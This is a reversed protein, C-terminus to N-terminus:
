NISETKNSDLVERIKHALDKMAIPKMLFGKIGLSATKEKSLGDSFGTCLLIHIDPQTKMLEVALKYGPLGPMAMDSIVLDFQDPNSNFIELAEISNICTTVRYGMRRLLSKEMLLISKEDDVLLINETGGKTPKTQSNQETFSHKELPFYVKFESGIGLESYVHIAGNMSKVIGHVVSLGMGTGKNKGKTTFFPDFIKKTLDTDMGTGQDAITLLAYAGPKMDPSMLDSKALEIEKLGVKLEGGTDEMAHYANTSLNMIIQHIRTPDAKIIGCKPNINQKIEITTPITSRILKLAEKIIPQMKMLKMDSKEHRAFTLIQQVLDKARLAGSNIENLSSRVSSDEPLDELLMESYGLIPFLINNFDHAIGGALTGISEMKQAQELKIAYSNITRAISRSIVFFIASMISVIFLTIGISSWIKKTIRENIGKEIKALQTELVDYYFGSGITWNWTKDYFFFSTKKVEHGHQPSPHWYSVFGEGHNRL